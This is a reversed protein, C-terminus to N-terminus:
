QISETGILLAQRNLLVHNTPHGLAIVTLIGPTRFGSRLNQFIPVLVHLIFQNGLTSNIIRFCDHAACGKRSGGTIQPCVRRGRFVRARHICSFYSGSLDVNAM